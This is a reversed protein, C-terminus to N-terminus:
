VTGDSKLALTRLEAGSMAVVDALSGAGGVGVVGVPTPRDTTTGDGLAGGGLPGANNAGWAAMNGQAAAFRPVISLCLVVVTVLAKRM